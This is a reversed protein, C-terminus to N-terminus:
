QKQQKLSLGEPTMIWTKGTMEQDWINNINEFDFQLQLLNEALYVSKGEPVKVTVQVEQNRWKAQNEILFYPDIILTSDNGTVTYRINDINKQVDTKNKGRATKKIIVSFDAAETAEIQLRPNGAIVKEGNVSILSFNEFQAGKQDKLRDPSSALELYLTQCAPCNLPKGSSITNKHSFNSAQGASVAILVVLAVLWIGFAGLGILKNNTKYRFVLKTGIFLIALLPIGILLVLLLVAISVLGPSVIFGLFGTFDVEPNIGASDSFITSNGVAFSVLVAVFGLFGTLILFSGFVVEITKGLGKLVQVSAQGAKNAAEKGKRFSESQNIRSFSKKVEGVEEQFTKQINTITAEEGRMELRQTTTRAEPVVIWLILYVIASVGVGVFVLLVFLIRLFVPDINFYASMGSCVGGLVRNEGDRYMRKKIKENKVADGANANLQAQDQEMFDEPNGMRQIVEDVWDATVAEHGERQKEQLLEAIRSEIDQLIEQGAPQNGFYRNLLVLYNQLKEFADEEIHFVSGSINITFTKKM